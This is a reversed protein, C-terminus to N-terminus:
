ENELEMSGVREQDMPSFLTQWFFMRGESQPGHLADEMVGIVWSKKDELTEGPLKRLDIEIKLIPKNMNM